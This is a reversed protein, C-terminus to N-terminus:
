DMVLNLANVPCKNTCVKCRICKDDNLKVKGEVIAQLTQENMYIVGEAIAQRSTVDKDTVDVMKAHGETNFHTFEM